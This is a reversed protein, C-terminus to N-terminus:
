HRQIHESGTLPGLNLFDGTLLGPNAAQRFQTNALTAPKLDDLRASGTQEINATAFKTQPRPITRLNKHTWNLSGPNASAHM